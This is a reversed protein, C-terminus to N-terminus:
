KDPVFRYIMSSQFVFGDSFDTNLQPRQDGVKLLISGFTIKERADYVRYSRGLTYGMRAQLSLGKILNFKLYTSLENTSKVVYGDNNINTPIENLHYSRVQGSFNVGINLRTHLIYNIEVLFPLTLNTEVKKNDSLYYVGFLPMFFPGSLETNYYAGLKYHLNEQKTYKLLAIAGFQFDQRGIRIFDSALKPLLIYYGSWKDSHKKSLGAKLALSSITQEAPNLEFLRTQIREYIVGTLFANSPNIVIPITTDLGLENVRTKSNSKEFNNLSSTGYYVKAIEVFNQGFSNAIIFLLPLLIIIKKMIINKISMNFTDTLSDRM